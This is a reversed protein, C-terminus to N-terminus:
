LNKPQLACRSIRGFPEFIYLAVEVEIRNLKIIRQERTRLADTMFVQTLAVTRPKGIGFFPELFLGRAPCRLDIKRRHRLVARNFAIRGVPMEHMVSFTRLASRPQNKGLHCAYGGLPSDRGAAGAEIPVLMLLGPLANNSEDVGLGIGFDGNLKAM